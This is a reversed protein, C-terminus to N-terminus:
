VKRYEGHRDKQFLTGTHKSLFEKFAREKMGQSAAIEVGQATTFLEPLQFLVSQQQVTLATENMLNQVRTATQKFYETLLIARQVTETDVQDKSCEGCLWRTIQIVLCFRIIYIELKCYIGLLMENSLNDCLDAHEHQWKYLLKRAEDSFTVISPQIENNEDFSCEINILRNLLTHWQSELDPSIDKENWRAKQQITPMIFLIRDIFGNSSRNGHALDSLIKKQITGIVPIFPRTIFVSSKANKRDSIVTKASFVSLWFQEESGNNYRNFNKFWASLEDSWLCLGRKNQAHIYSM